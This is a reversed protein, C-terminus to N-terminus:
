TAPTNRKKAEEVASEWSTRFIFVGEVVAVVLLAIACGFWLGLLDWGGVFCTSISIPMAIGYYAVLAVYGGVEQRGLGRLIGNAIAAISDFLQFAAVVPLTQSVLEIVPEVDTFIRPLANRLLSLMLMNFTGVFFAVVLSVMATTRAAPALTAGILNAVRTSAAISIPFPIQFATTAITSILSQAALHTSSIFSAMLTLIEFALYEALVMVLGPLALKVMPWWNQLAAPSFGGWCDKGKDFILVYALLIVPMVNETIAVAIPAGIFGYGLHRVLLWHLFVNLPAVILLVFLNAEFLGQAQVFRKGSEWLLIGPTAAIFVRLYLGALEAVEREPVISALILPSFTWLTAIPITIVALFAIMRQMQLGVLKKHGSGYAQACLTDLSTALGQYIAIGTISSTMTALSVAGLEIEGIHGVFFVSTVPLSYQLLFTVILSRSYKGLVKLERQWTTQIKGAAIAEDWKREINEPSDQGGYPLTPDIDGSILPTSESAEVANSQTRSLSDEDPHILQSAKHKLTSFVNRHSSAVSGRRPHKPPIINNDRLLSREEHLVNIREEETLCDSNSLPLNPLLTSRNHGSLYSPRQYSGTMSYDTGGHMVHHLGPYGHLQAPGGYSASLPQPDDEADDPDLIVDREISAQAIDQVSAIPRLLSRRLTHPASSQSHQSPRPSRSPPTSM